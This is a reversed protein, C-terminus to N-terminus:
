DPKLEQVQKMYSTVEEPSLYGLVDDTIGSSYCLGNNKLVAMEYLGQDGGYSHEGKIVSVGYGNEFDMIAHINGEGWAKHTEFVLDEFTKM